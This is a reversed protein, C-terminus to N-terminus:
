TMAGISSPFCCGCEGIGRSRALVDAYPQATNAIETAVTSPMANISMTVIASTVISYRMAIVSADSPPRPGDSSAADSATAANSKQKTGGFNVNATESTRYRMVKPTMNADPSAILM